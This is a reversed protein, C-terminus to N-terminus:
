VQEAGKRMYSAWVLRGPFSVVWVPIKARRCCNDVLFIGGGVHEWALGIAVIGENFSERGLHTLNVGSVIHLWRHLINYCVLPMSPLVFIQM